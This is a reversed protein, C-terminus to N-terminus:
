RGYWYSPYSAPYYYNPTYYNSTTYYPNYSVPQYISQSPWGPAVGYGYAQQATPPLTTPPTPTAAPQGAAPNQRPAAGFYQFDQPGYHGNPLGFAGSYGGPPCGYPNFFEPGPPQGDRVVGWLISNNGSQWHWNIGAGFKFNVWAPAQQETALLATLALMGLSLFRNM